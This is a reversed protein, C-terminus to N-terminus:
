RIHIRTISGPGMFTPDLTGVILRNRLLGKEVAVVGPVDAVKWVHGNAYASVEGGFLEAVYITGNGGIALNTAGNFGTALRTAHHTWPNVKWLSGRAGLEDGEPGGPLTTVYLLGNRGVEVDTPVPEFGYVSGAFCDPDLENAEAFDATIVAPQPPLVAVTSIHGRNDVKLIDNGGADAVLWKDRWAAVSYAHSDIRGTYQADPGLGEIQCQTPHAFGYTNVKDPNNATEYALTDAFVAGSKGTIHLGSATNEFTNPDSETTTYALKTRAANRDIGSTGTADPVLIKQAGNWSIRSVQNLGGDAVYMGNPWVSVNFPAFVDTSLTTLTPRAKHAGSADAAVPAAVALAAAAAVALLRHHRV